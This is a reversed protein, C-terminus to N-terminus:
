LSGQIAGPISPPPGRQTPSGITTSRASTRVAIDRSLNFEAVARINPMGRAHQCVAPSLIALLPLVGM